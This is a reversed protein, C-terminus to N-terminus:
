DNAREEHQGVVKLNSAGDRAALADTYTVPAASVAPAIVGTRVDILVYATDAVTMRRRTGVYRASGPEALRAQRSVSGALWSGALAPTVTTMASARTRDKVDIEITDYEWAAAIAPGTDFADGTDFHQWTLEVGADRVEFSPRSIKEEDSMSFYQGPAFREKVFSSPKQVVKSTGRLAIKEIVFPGTFDPATNGFREIATNLPVVTQRSKVGGFPHLLAVGAPDRERLTVPVGQQAPLVVSWNRADALATRLLALPQSVPLPEPAQAEGITAQFAIEHRGLFNVSATGLAHFPGPGDLTLHLDASIISKGNRQIDAGGYLEAIFHFPDFQFLLDFGLYASATLKGVIVIDTSAFIDVKAGMQFSNSTVAIYTELRLRPNEGAALSLALRGLPPFNAPAPFRPNFGGISLIFEPSEGWNLRMAMDGTLTFVLIRSDYLTAVISVDCRAVDLTGLIDMHIVVLPAKPNPLELSLIGLLAIQVPMPIEIMIGIEMTLLSPSGWGIKVMPGLVFRNLAPPFITKLDSIIQTARGVPDQPFLISNLTRSKVGARLPELMMKRNIGILGGVGNLTFGFALTIPSFEASVILLLSFGKQGPPLEPLRTTLLGILKIDILDKIKVQAVGAYSEQDFDFYLYGGGTVAEAEIKLGVGNPPKFGLSFDANGLNGAVFKLNGSIGVKEITSQVPGLAIGGTASATLRLGGQMSGLGITIVDLKFPGLTEHVPIAIELMGSGEFRLGQVQSWHVKLDFRSEIGGAPLIKSLFGDAGGLAIVIHGGVVAAVIYPDPSKGIALGCGVEFFIDTAEMRTGGSASLIQSPKGDARARHLGIGLRGSAGAGPMGGSLFGTRLEAGTPRLAVGVGAGLDLSADLRLALNTSLPISVDAAGSVLAALELGADSGNVSTPRLRHLSLAVDVALPGGHITMPLLLQSSPDSVAGPMPQGTLAEEVAQPMDRVLPRMGLSQVLLGINTLLAEADFSATSWGYEDVFLKGPNSFLDQLREYRVVTRRHALQYISPGAPYPDYGFLGLTRFVFAATPSVQGVAGVVLLDLLRRPLENTIDTKTVYDGAAALTTPLDNAFQTIAELLEAVALVLDAARGGMISSDKQEEPTSRLLIELKDIVPTPNLALVTGLNVGPPPAFGMSALASEVTDPQGAMEGLPVLALAVTEALKDLSTTM